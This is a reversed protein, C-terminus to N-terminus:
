VAFALLFLGAEGYNWFKLEVPTVGCLCGRSFLCSSSGLTVQVSITAYAWVVKLTVMGMCFNVGFAVMISAYLAAAV